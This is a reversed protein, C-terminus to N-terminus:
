WGSAGPGGHAGIDSTTGDSDVITEVGADILESGKALTLDWSTATKGSVDAYAPDVAINGDTGVPDIGASGWYSVIAESSFGDAVQDYFSCNRVTVADAQAATMTHSRGDSATSVNGDITVNVLDFSSDGTGSGWLEGYFIAGWVYSGAVQNGTISANSLELSSGNMVNLGSVDAAATVANGAQVLNTLSVQSTIAYIFGHVITDTSTLRNDRLRLRTADFWSTHIYVGLLEPGSVINGDVDLDTLSVTVDNIFGALNPTGGGGSMTVTSDSLSGGSWDFSSGPGYAYVVGPSWASEAGSASSADSVVTSSGLDVDTLGVDSEVFRLGLGSAVADGSLTSARAQIDNRLVSLQDGQFSGGTLTVLYAIATLSGSASLASTVSNDSLSGSDWTLDSDVGQVLWASGSVTSDAVSVDNDVVYVDSLM